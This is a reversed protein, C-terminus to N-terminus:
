GHARATENLQRLALSIEMWQQVTLLLCALVARFAVIKKHLLLVFYDIVQDFREFVTLLTEFL